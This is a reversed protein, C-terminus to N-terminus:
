SAKSFNDSWTSPRGSFKKIPQKIAPRESSIRRSTFILCGLDRTSVIPTARSTSSLFMNCCFKGCGKWSCVVGAVKLAVVVKADLMRPGGGVVFELDAVLLKFM